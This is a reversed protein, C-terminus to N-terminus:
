ATGAAARARDFMAVPDLRVGIIQEYRDLFSFRNWNIERYCDRALRWLDAPRYCGSTHVHLETQQLRGYDV